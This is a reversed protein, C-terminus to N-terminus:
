RGSVNAHMICFANLGQVTRQMTGLPVDVNEMSSAKSACVEVLVEEADVSVAVGDAEALAGRLASPIM